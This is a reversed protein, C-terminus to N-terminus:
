KSTYFSYNGRGSAKVTYMAADSYKVLTNIDSGDDPYLAIGISTTIQLENGELLFPEQFSCLIRQAIEAAEDMGTIESLLIMFEDGGFRAVTDTKRTVKTLRGGVAKLLEDGVSHGLTDNVSKFKDLDLMMVAITRSKRKAQHIAVNLRDNLLTRSPLGTLADHTAMEELKTELKKRETVDRGVSRFGIAEGRENELLSISSETFGVSGDKRIIPFSFGNNPQGTLYVNHYAEFVLKWTDETVILKFNKGILEERTYGLNHCTADNVFTFNGTLNVEFYSDNMRALINRYKEESLRVAEEARKRDNIDVLHGLMARSGRYVIAVNMDMAWKIEGSKTVYRFEYPNNREGKLMRVANYRVLERDEPYALDISDIVQLEDMSYGTIRTFEPNCFVFKRNKAIYIGSPASSFLSMFLEQARRREEVEHELKKNSEQLENTREKILYELNQRHEELERQAMRDATIDWFIGVIGVVKGDPEKVPTKITHVYFVQGDRMYNEEIEEAMGSNIIRKDDDRYKDAMEQSFFEYDTKGAIDAVKINFARALNENCSIYVSNQDKLFIKQPLHEILTRYWNDKISRYGAPSEYEAKAKSNDNGKSKEAM